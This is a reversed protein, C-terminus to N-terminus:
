ALTSAPRSLGAESTFTSVSFPSMICTSILPQRLDFPKPRTIWSSKPIFMATADSSFSAAMDSAITVVPSCFTSSMVPRGQSCTLAFTHIFFSAM